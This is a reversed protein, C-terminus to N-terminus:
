QSLTKMFIRSDTKLTDLSNDVLPVSNRKALFGTTAPAPTVTATPVDLGASGYEATEKPKM